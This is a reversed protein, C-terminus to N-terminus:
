GGKGDSVDEGDIRKRLSGDNRVTFGLDSVSSGESSGGSAGGDDNSVRILTSSSSNSKRGSGSLGNGSLASGHDTNDGSSLSGILGDKLSGVRPEFISCLSVVPGSNSTNCHVGNLMRMSSTVMLMNTM